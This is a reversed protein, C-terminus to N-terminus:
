LLIKSLEDPKECVLRPVLYGPLRLMMAHHLERVRSLDVAFHGAGEVPDLLHLYYPIVGQTFLIESLTSLVNADDNINKLLVSQNFLLIGADRLRKLAFCVEDNIEQPHNVHIVIVPKFSLHTIWTLFEDTIREPLVVLLRTHIRLRKVHNIEALQDTFSQLLADSVALPDGGSLIVEHITQDQRIYEFIKKWGIRGPNNDEYPFHRRFCYRCHIACANTLLVLVRGAYKHLLGPVPNKSTEQLPHLTYGPIKELEKALPLVQQLLPDHWNGKQIRAIFGRPVKLPFHSGGVLLHDLYQSDLHLLSLLERPDTVLDSLARQWSTKEKM